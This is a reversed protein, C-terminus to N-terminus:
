PSRRLHGAGASCAPCPADGGACAACRIPGTAPTATLADALRDAEREARDHPAGVPAKQRPEREPSASAM